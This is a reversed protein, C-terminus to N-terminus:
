GRVRSPPNHFDSETASISKLIFRTQLKAVLARLALSTLESLLVWAFHVRESLPQQLVVESVAGCLLAPPGEGEATVVM